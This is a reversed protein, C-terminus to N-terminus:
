QYNEEERRINTTDCKSSYDDIKEFLCRGGVLNENNKICNSTTETLDTAHKAIFNTHSLLGFSEIATKIRTFRSESIIGNL